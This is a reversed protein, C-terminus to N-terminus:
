KVNNQLKHSDENVPQGVGYKNTENIRHESCHAHKSRSLTSFRRFTQGAECVDTGNANKKKLQIEGANRVSRLRQIEFYNVAVIDCM